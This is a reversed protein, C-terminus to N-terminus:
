HAGPHQMQVSRGLRRRRHRIASPAERNTLGPEFPDCLSVVGAAVDASIKVM